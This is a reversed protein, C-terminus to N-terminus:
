SDATEVRNGAPYETTEDAKWFKAAGAVGLVTLTSSVALLVFEALTFVPPSYVITHAAVWASIFAVLLAVLVLLDRFRPHDM